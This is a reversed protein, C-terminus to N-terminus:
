EKVELVTIPIEQTITRHVPEVGLERGKFIRFDDGPKVRSNLAAELQEVTDYSFMAVKGMVLVYKEDSM